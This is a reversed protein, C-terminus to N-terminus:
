QNVSEVIKNIYEKRRWIPLSCIENEKWNYFYALLHIDNLLKQQSRRLIDLSIREIDVFNAYSYKCYPCIVTINLNVLPDFKELHQSIKKLDKENVKFDHKVMKEDKNKLISKIIDNIANSKSLYTKKRWLLQHLGTPKRFIYKQNNVLIETAEKENNQKLLELLNKVTLSFEIDKKCVTNECKLQIEIDSNYTSLAIILLFELRKSISLEWFFDIDISNSKEDSICQLLIQTILFPTVLGDFDIELDESKNCFPRFRLEQISYKDRLKEQINLSLDYFGTKSINEM